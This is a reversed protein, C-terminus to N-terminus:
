KVLNKLMLLFEYSPLKDLRGKIIHFIYKLNNKENYIFYSIYIYIYKHKYKYKNITYKKFNKGSFLKITWGKTFSFTLIERFGVLEIVELLTESQYPNPYVKEKMLASYKWPKEFEAIKSKGCCPNTLDKALSLIKADLSFRSKFKM